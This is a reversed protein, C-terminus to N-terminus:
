MAMGGDVTLVQGTMYSSLDSALFLATNAVDEGQGPRQLPIINKWQDLTEQDLEETMETEIFGPALVNSRINRSGLEKALSKSFGNIGAKSAAYNAQGPNGQLGVVSSVHIFSGKKNKMMPKIAFKSINFISKLNNDLVKDWQEENMRMLLNDETIGANNVVVELSGFDKTIQNVLSEAAQFDSADSQYGKVQIGNKGLSEELAQAKEVSSRYTFAIHAGQEAFKEAIGQGIGRTAGTILIIKGDLLKM